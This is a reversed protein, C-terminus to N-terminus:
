TNTTHQLQTPHNFSNVPHCEKTWGTHFAWQQPSSQEKEEWVRDSLMVTLLQLPFPCSIQINPPRFSSSPCILKENEGGSQGQVKPEATVGVWCGCLAGLTWVCIPEMFFQTGELRPITLCLGTFDTQPRTQAHPIITPKPQPRWLKINACWSIHFTVTRITSLTTADHKMM